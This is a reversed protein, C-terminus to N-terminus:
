HAHAIRSWCFVTWPSVLWASAAVSHSNFTHQVKIKVSQALQTVQSEGRCLSSASSIGKSLVALAQSGAVDISRQRAVAVSLKTLCQQRGGPCGVGAQRVHMGHGMCSGQLLEGVGITASHLCQEARSLHPPALGIAVYQVGGLQAQPQQPAQDHLKPSAQSLKLAAGLCSGPEQLCSCGLGLYLKFAPTENSSHPRLVSGIASSVAGLTAQHLLM